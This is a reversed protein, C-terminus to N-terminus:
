RPCVGDEKFASDMGLHLSPVGCIITVDSNLDQIQYQNRDGAEDVPAVVLRCKWAATPLTVHETAPCSLIAQQGGTRYLHVELVAHSASYSWLRSAFGHFRELKRNIETVNTVERVRQRDPHVHGSDHLSEEAPM